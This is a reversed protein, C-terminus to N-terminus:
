NKDLYNGVTCSGISMKKFFLILNVHLMVNLILLIILLEYLEKITDM